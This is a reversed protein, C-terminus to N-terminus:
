YWYKTKQTWESTPYRRHLIDFAEKSFPSSTKDAPGYRTSRVALHLAEPVRSDQPHTRAWAIAAASLYNVANPVAERLAKAEREGAAREDPPLFATPGVDGAPYLDYLPQHVVDRDPGVPAPLELRWWNDRFDDIKGVETTRGIGSRIEPALGPLRLVWLIATFRAAAPDTQALYDRVAPALEPRLERARAALTRASEADDLIVARVWGAQAIDAQLERPLANNSSADIWRSLPVMRNIPGASDLDFAATPMKAQVDDPIDGGYTEAVPKRPTDHLFESWDPAVALRETHLVNAVSDSQKTALAADAWTRAADNEGRRIQLLIGYYTASAYAPSDPALQRAAAILDPTAAEKPGAGVLAAVLWAPSHTARWREVAHPGKGGAQFTKLWDAVDSRDAPIDGKDALHTYDTVAQRINAGIGPRMIQDGLEVLRGQPDLTAHIFDILGRASAHFRKAAPDALVAKLRSEADRLKDPQNQLTARRIVARAALYRGGDRWPSSANAAIADFDRAAEEFQGAYFKAAAIQYQRDAALLPDAGAPVPAPISPGKTCNEFVQDQGRLWERTNESAAGWRAIREGLTATATDFAGDLCNPFEQFDNGPVRKNEDIMDITQAGAVKPRAELWRSSASKGAGNSPPPFLAAAEEASLPVGALRRYALLLPERYFHPRLVGLQGRAFAQEGGPVPGHVPTFELEPLFPGCPYVMLAGLLLVPVLLRM